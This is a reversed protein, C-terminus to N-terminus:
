PARLMATVHDLLGNSSSKEHIDSHGFRDAPRGELTAPLEGSVEVARPAKDEGDALYHEHGEPLDLALASSLDVSGDNPKPEAEKSSWGGVVYLRDAIRKAGPSGNLSELFESGELLDVGLGPSSAQIAAVPASSQGPGDGTLNRIWGTLRGGANPTSVLVARRIPAGYDQMAARIVLGGMSHGVMDLDEAGKECAGRVGALLTALASGSRTIRYGTPYSFRGVRMGKVSLGRILDRQGEFGDTHSIVGHTLLVRREQGHCLLETLEAPEDAGWITPPTLWLYSLPLNGKFLVFAAGARLRDAFRRGEDGSVVESGEAALEFELSALGASVAKAGARVAAAPDDTTEGIVMM